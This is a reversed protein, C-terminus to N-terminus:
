RMGSFPFGMRILNRIQIDRQVITTTRVYELLTHIIIAEENEKEAGAVVQCILLQACGLPDNKLIRDWDIDFKEVKFIGFLFM